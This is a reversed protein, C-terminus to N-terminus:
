VRISSFRAFHAQRGDPEQAQDVDEGYVVVCQSRLSSARPNPVARDNSGDARVMGRWAGVLM